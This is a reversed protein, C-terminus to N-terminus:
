RAAVIFRGEKWAKGNRELSMRVTVGLKNLYRTLRDVSYSKWHGNLLQSLKPQPLGIIRGAAVQSLDREEIVRGIEMVLRSKALELEANAFGLDAFPNDSGETFIVSKGTASRAKPKGTRNM